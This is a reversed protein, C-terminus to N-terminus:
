WLRFATLPENYQDQQARIVGVAGTALQYVRRPGLTRAHTHHTTGIVVETWDLGTWHDPVGGHLGRPAKDRM